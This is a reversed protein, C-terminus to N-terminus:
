PTPASWGPFCCVIDAEGPCYGTEISAPDCLTKNLCTRQLIIDTRDPDSSPVTRKDDGYEYECQTMSSCVKDICTFVNQGRGETSTQACRTGDPKDWCQPDNGLLYQGELGFVQDEVLRVVTFSLMIIFIGVVAGTLIKKGLEVRDSRGGSVLLVFGGLVFFLLAVGAVYNIGITYANIFLLVIDELGCDSGYQPGACDQPIISADVAFPTAITLTIVIILSIIIKKM